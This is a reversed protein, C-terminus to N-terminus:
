RHFQSTNEQQKIQEEQQTIKDIIEQLPKAYIRGDSKIKHCIEQLGEKSYIKNFPFMNKLLLDEIARFLVQEEKTLNQNNAVFERLAAMVFMAGKLVNINMNKRIQLRKLIESIQKDKEALAEQHEQEVKNLQISYNKQQKNINNRTEDREDLMFKLRQKLESVQERLKKNQQETQELIKNINEQQEKLQNVINEKKYVNEAREKIEHEQQKLESRELAIKMKTNRLNNIEDRNVAYALAQEALTSYIEKSVAVKKTLPILKPEEMIQQNTVQLKRFPELKRELGELEVKNANIKQEQESLETETMAKYARMSFHKRPREEENLSNLNARSGRELSFTKGVEEYFDDQLRQMDKRGGLVDKASLRGDNTLPVFDLHMHPTEEDLHVMAAIVNEKGFRKCAWNYCKQFYKQTYEPYREFFDGSATFMIECLLVADKRIARKSKYGAHIRENILMNYPKNNSNFLEYNNSSRSYDIDPNSNSHARERRNHIQLGVIDKAGGIKQVRCIAYSM